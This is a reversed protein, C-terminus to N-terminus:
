FQNLRPPYVIVGLNHKAAEGLVATTGELNFRQFGKLHADVFESQGRYSLFTADSIVGDAQQVNVYVIANNVINGKEQCCFCIM